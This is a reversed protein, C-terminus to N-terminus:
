DSKIIIQDSVLNQGTEFTNPIVSQSKFNPFKALEKDTALIAEKLEKERDKRLKENEKYFEDDLANLDLNKIM